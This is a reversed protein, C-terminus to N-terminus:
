KKKSTEASSVQSSASGAASSQGSGTTSAPALYEDSTQGSGRFDSLIKQEDSTLAPGASGASSKGAASAEESTVVHIITQPELKLEKLEDETVSVDLSPGNPFYRGIAYYGGASGNNVLLSVKQEAANPDYSKGPLQGRATRIAVLAADKQADTSDPPPRTLASVPAAAPLNKAETM